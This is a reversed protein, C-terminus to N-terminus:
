PTIIANGQTSLDHPLIQRWKEAYRRRKPSSARPSYSRQRRRQQFFPTPAVASQPVLQIPQYGNLAELRRYIYILRPLDSMLEKEQFRTYWYLERLRNLNLALVLEKGVMYESILGM